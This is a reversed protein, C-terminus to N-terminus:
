NGRAVIIKLNITVTANGSSLGFKDQLSLTAYNSRCQLEAAIYLRGTRPMTYPIGCATQADVSLFNM